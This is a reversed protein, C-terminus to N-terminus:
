RNVKFRIKLHFTCFFVFTTLICLEYCCMCIYLYIQEYTHIFCVYMCVFMCIYMCVHKCGYMCVYTCVFMCVFLCVFLCVYMCVCMYIYTCTRYLLTCIYIYRIGNYPQWCQQCGHPVMIWHFIRDTSKSGKKLQM